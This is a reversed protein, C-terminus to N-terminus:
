EGEGFSLTPTLHEITFAIAGDKKVKEVLFLNAQYEQGLVDVWGCICAQLVNTDLLYDVQQKIVAHMLKVLTSDAALSSLGPLIFVFCVVVLRM